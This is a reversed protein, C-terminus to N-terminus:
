TVGLTAGSLLCSRYYVEESASGASCGERHAPASLQAHASLTSSAAKWPVWSIHQALRDRKFSLPKLCSSLPIENRVCRGDPGAPVVRLFPDTFCPGPQLLRGRVACGGAAQTGWGPAGCGEEGCGLHGQRLGKLESLVATM